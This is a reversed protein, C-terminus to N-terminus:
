GRIGQGELAGPGSGIERVAWSSVLWVENRPM